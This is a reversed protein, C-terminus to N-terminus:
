FEGPRYPLRYSSKEMRTASVAVKHKGGIVLKWGGSQMNVRSVSIVPIHIDLTATM